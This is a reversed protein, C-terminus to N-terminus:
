FIGRKKLYVAIVIGIIAFVAVIIAFNVPQAGESATGEPATGKVNAPIGPQARGQPLAKSGGEELQTIAFSSFANSKARYYTFPGDDKTGM